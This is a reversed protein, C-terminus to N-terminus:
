LQKTRRVYVHTKKISTEWGPLTNIKKIARIIAARRNKVVDKSCPRKGWVHRILTDIEAGEGAM